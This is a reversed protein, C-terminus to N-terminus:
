WSSFGTASRGKADRNSGSGEEAVTGKVCEQAGLLDQDKQTPTMAELADLLRERQQIAGRFHSCIKGRVVM